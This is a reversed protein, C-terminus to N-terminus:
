ICEGESLGVGRVDQIKPFDGGNIFAFAIGGIESEGLVKSVHDMAVDEIAGGSGDFAKTVGEVEDIFGGTELEDIAKLGESIDKWCEM